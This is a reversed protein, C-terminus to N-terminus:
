LVGWVPGLIRGRIQELRQDVADQHKDIDMSFSQSLGDASISGSGPVFAGQLIRLLAMQKVLDVLDAYEPSKGNIGAKYKVRIMHPVRIGSTIAQVSVMALPTNISGLGPTIQIQGYKHDLKIWNKPVEFMTHTMSPYILRISEVSIVPCVRLKLTGWAQISFFDAPLDYGPEVIYPMSGLATKEEETPENTFIQTPQLPFGLKRQAEAEAALWYDWLEEDLILSQDINLKSAAGHLLTSRLRTVASNYALLASSAAVPGDSDIRATWTRSSGGSTAVILFTTAPPAVLRTDDATLEIVVVGNAWLAGVSLPSVSIQGSIPHSGDASYLQATVKASTDISVPAGAVRLTLTVTQAQGQVIAM